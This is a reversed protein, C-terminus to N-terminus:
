RVKFRLREFEEIKFIQSIDEISGINIKIPKNLDNEVFFRYESQHKFRTPKYFVGLEGNFENEDYYKVLRSYLKRNSSRFSSKMRELFESVNYIVLFHDGFATNRVDLKGHMESLKTTIALTSFVNGKLDPIEVKLHGNVMNNKLSDRTTELSKDGKKLELWSLQEIREVGEYTDKREQNNEIDRFYM